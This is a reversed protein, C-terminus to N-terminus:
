QIGVGRRRSTRYDDDDPASNGPCTRANEQRARKDMSRGRAQADHRAGQRICAAAPHGYVPLGEPKWGDPGTRRGSFGCSLFLTHAILILEKVGSGALKTAEAVLDEIPVSRHPGRIFPIACYSCRRDCGESIKLFAYPLRSDSRVRDLKRSPVVPCGLAKVVPVLDRAGFWGDVEPILGPMDQMYRQSLCGFVLIKGVKGGAKLCTAELIAQISEEKADGIFGCTNLLLYDVKRDDGEPVIEFYDKVHALLHETDVINKSCGMTIVRITKKEPICCNHM